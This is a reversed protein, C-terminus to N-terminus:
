KKFHVRQSILVMTDVAYINMTEFKIGAQSIRSCHLGRFSVDHVTREYEFLTSRFMCWYLPSMDPFLNISSGLYFLCSVFTYCRGAARKNTVRHLHRAGINGLSMSAVDIIGRVM